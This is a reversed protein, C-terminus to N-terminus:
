AVRHLQSEINSDGIIAHGHSVFDQYISALANSNFECGYYFFVSGNSNFSGDSKGFSLALNEDAESFIKYLSPHDKRIASFVNEVGNSLWVSKTINLTALTAIPRNASPPLVISLCSM